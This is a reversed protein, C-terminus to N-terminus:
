EEASTHDTYEVDGASQAFTTEYYTKVCIKVM